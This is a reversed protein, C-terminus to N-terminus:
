GSVAWPAAPPFTWTGDLVEQRPRYLRVIYNWGETIPLWNPASDPSGGFQVTVSGDPGRRATLDNVSYRSEPNPEFFGERNYVTISWFGDVPVAGVTLRHVTTGDDKEPFVGVYVADRPPNGGWGAATTVLHLVPDVEDKTGFGASIAGGIAPAVRLLTDRVTTLSTEDWDPVDFRGVGVGDVDIRVQDQLANVLRVDAPDEAHVLTRLLLAIYRTGVSARSFVHPGPGYVAGPTHHDEDIVQLSMFRDGADPLTVTVDSADLDCVAPSYLTDRNERIVRHQDVPAPTRDHAFAALGVGAVIGSMYRHTEARAFTDVTVPVTTM